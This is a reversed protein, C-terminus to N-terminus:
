GPPKSTYKNYIQLRSRADAIVIQNNKNVTIGTPRGFSKFDMMIDPHKRITDLAVPGALASRELVFLGAKSYDSADGYLAAILEGDPEYIQVRCNGWDTVYVDGDSDVAVHAPHNLKSAPDVSEGFTLLHTGDPDFKQVRNNGWDAVYVDGSSDVTIGWPNQFEGYSNGGRGWTNIFQGTDTFLQIRNNKSDVVYLNNEKNFALGTPGIFEGDRSGSEGWRFISEGNPDAEPFPYTRDTNFVYIANEYEDSCFINGEASIAISNPWTTAHRAFDGLHNEDFTTKGIRNGIDGDYGELSFGFGRSLVFIMNETSIAVDMPSCFGGTMGLKSENHEHTRRGISHSFHWEKGVPVTPITTNM